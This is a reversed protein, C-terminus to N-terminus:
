AADKGAARWADAYGQPGGLLRVAVLAAWEQDSPKYGQHLMKYAVVQIEEDLLDSNLIGVLLRELIEVMQSISGLPERKLQPRSALRHLPTPRCDAGVLPLCETEVLAIM